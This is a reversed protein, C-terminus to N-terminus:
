SRGQTARPRTAYINHMVTNEFGAEKAVTLETLGKERLLDTIKELRGETDHVEAIVKNILEDAHKGNPHDVKAILTRRADQKNPISQAYLREEPSGSGLTPESKGALGLGEQGATVSGTAKPTCSNKIM